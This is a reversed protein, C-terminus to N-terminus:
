KVTVRTVQTLNKSTIRVLYAGRNLKDLSFNMSGSVQESFETVLNGSLDFVQVRVMSTKPQVVTLENNAFGYKLGGANAVVQLGDKCLKDYQAYIATDSHINKGRLSSWGTFEYKCGSDSVVSPPNPFDIEKEHIWTGDEYRAELLLSDKFGYFKLTYREPCYSVSYEPTYVKNGIVYDVSDSSKWGAFNYYCSDHDKSPERWTFPYSGYSYGEIELTDGKADLFVVTYSRTNTSYSATYTANKTVKEISPYWYNFYYTYEATSDKYSGKFEPWEGYRYTEEALM